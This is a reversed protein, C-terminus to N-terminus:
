ADALGQRARDWRVLRGALYWGAVAVAAGAYGDIAYHWALHISGLFIIMAYALALWGLWRRGSAFGALVLLICTAVHMSPMASIGKVVGEGSVYSEWLANQIDLSWIPSVLSAQNLYAMLHQFPDPGDLLRGYFAPGVSSFFTGMVNTGFFWTLMFALLYRQRFMSDRSAAGVWIWSSFLITFWMNYGYSLASSVSHHGLLPQLIQYPHMGFHLLRDWETLAADWQFPNLSPLFIKLSAFASMFLSIALCSHVFNALRQPALVDNALMHGLAKIPSGDYGSRWLLFTEQIIRWLISAAVIVMIPLAILLFVMRMDSLRDLYIAAALATLDTGIAAVYLLTHPRLGAALARRAEVLHQTIDHTGLGIATTNM